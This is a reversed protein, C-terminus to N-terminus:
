RFDFLLQLMRETHSGITVGGRQHRLTNRCAHIAAVEANHAVVEVRGGRSLSPADAALARWRKPLGYSTFDIEWGGPGGVPISGEVLSPYRRVFDPIGNSRVRVTYAVPLSNLYSQFGTVQGSRFRDFFDLPDIGILNMGNLHGHHNRSGFRRWDYWSQFNESIWFGIEFHLHARERPITYGGASRGMVGITQGMRVKAGPQVEEAISAMHAYLTIVAPTVQRHEIVIYRGYSSNGAIRNTHLVVGEMVAFVPDIAEGRADRAIPKLDLGEHFRGGSNRVCGFGASEVLGSVTPQFYNEPPKGAAYAPNSTPWVIQLREGAETGNVAVLLGVLVLLTRVM